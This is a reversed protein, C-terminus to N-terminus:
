QQQLSQQKVLGRTHRKRNLRTTLQGYKEEEAKKSTKM